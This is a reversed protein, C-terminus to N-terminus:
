PPELTGASLKARGLYFCAESKGGSHTRGRDMIHIKSSRGASTVYDLMHNAGYDITQAHASAVILFKVKECGTTPNYSYHFSGLKGNRLENRLVVVRGLFVM